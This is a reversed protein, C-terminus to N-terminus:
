WDRMKESNNITIPRIPTHPFIFCIDHSVPLNFQPTLDKSSYHDMGPSHLWIMCVGAEGSIKIVFSDQMLM